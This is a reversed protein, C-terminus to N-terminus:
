KTKESLSDMETALLRREDRGKIPWIELGHQIIKKVVSDYIYQRKRKM